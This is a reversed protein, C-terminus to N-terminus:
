QKVYGLDIMQPHLLKIVAQAEAFCSHYDTVGGTSSVGGGPDLPASAIAVYLVRRAATYFCSM